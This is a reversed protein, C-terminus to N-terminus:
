GLLFGLGAPQNLLWGTLSYRSVKTSLVEHPVQDSKFLILRNAIPEIIEETDNSLYLKLEGADAQTWDENMYYVVSMLRNGRGKFQDLHKEYFSGSPYHAFHFESGSIPLFCYRKLLAIMQDIRNFYNLIADDEARDIWYVYDGRIGHNITHNILAGIGAKDFAQNGLKLLFYNRLERYQIDPLFHDFVVYDNESLEDVWDLENDLSYAVM